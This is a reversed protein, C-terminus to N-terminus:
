CFKDECPCGDFAYEGIEQLSKPRNISVLSECAGFADPGIEVLGESLNVRKLNKCKWFAAHGIEEVSSPITVEELQDWESFNWQGIYKVGEDIVLHHFPVYTKRGIIGDYLQGSVHMIGEHTIRYEAITGDGWDTIGYGALELLSKYEEATMLNSLSKIFHDWGYDDFAGNDAYYDGLNVIKGKKTISHIQQIDDEIGKIGDFLTLGDFLVEGPVIEKPLEEVVKVMEESINSLLAKDKITEYVAKTFEKRTKTM